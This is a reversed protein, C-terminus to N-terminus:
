CRGWFIAEIIMANLLLLRLLMRRRRITTIWHDMWGQWIRNCTWRATSISQRGWYCLLHHFLKVAATSIKPGGKKFDVQHNTAHTNMLIACKTFLVPMLFHRNKLRHSRQNEGPYFLLFNLLFQFHKTTSFFSSFIFKWPPLFDLVNVWMKFFFIHLVVITCAYEYIYYM